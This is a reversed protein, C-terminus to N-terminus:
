PVAVCRRRHVADDPGAVGIDGLGLALHEAADADVGDGARGLDDHQGVGGVIGAADGDIQQGLGLM